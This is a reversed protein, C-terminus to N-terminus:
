AAVALQEELALGVESLLERRMEDRPTADFWHFFHRCAAPDHFSADAADCVEAFFSYLEGVTQLRDGKWGCFGIACASCITSENLADFPPPSSVAGQM